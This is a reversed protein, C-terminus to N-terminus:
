KGLHTGVRLSRSPAERGNHRGYGVRFMHETTFRDGGPRVGDKVWAARVSDVVGAGPGVSAVFKIVM